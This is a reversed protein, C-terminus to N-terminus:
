TMTFLCGCAKPSNYILDYLDDRLNQHNNKVMEVM